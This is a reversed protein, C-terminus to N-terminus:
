SLHLWRIPPFWEYDFGLMTLFSLPLYLQGDVRRAPNALTRSRGNIWATEADADIIFFQFWGAVGSLRSGGKTSWAKIPLVAVLDKAAIYLEDGEMLPPHEPRYGRGEMEILLYDEPQWAIVRLRNSESFTILYGQRSLSLWRMPEPLQWLRHFGDDDLRWATLLGKELGVWITDNRNPTPLAQLADAVNTIDQEWQDVLRSTGGDWSYRYLLNQTTAVFLDSQGSGSPVMDFLRVHGWPYNEAVKLLRDGESTWRYITVPGQEKAIAISPLGQDIYNGVAVFRQPPDPVETRWVPTLQGGTSRFLVVTGDQGLALLDDGGDGDIDVTELRAVRTWLRAATGHNVVGEDSFSLRQLPGSGDMGLWM